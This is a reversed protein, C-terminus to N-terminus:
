LDQYDINRDTSSGSIIENLPQSAVAIDSYGYVIDVLTNIVSSTNFIRTENKQLDLRNELYRSPSFLPRHKESLNKYKNMETLSISIKTQISELESNVTQIDLTSDFTSTYTTNVNEISNFLRVSNEVLIIGGQLNSILRKTELKWAFIEQGFIPIYSLDPTFIISYRIANSDSNLKQSIDQYREIDMSANIQDTRLANEIFFSANESASYVNILTIIPIFISFIIGTLISTWLPVLTSISDIQIIRLM